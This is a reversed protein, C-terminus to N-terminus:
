EESSDGADKNESESTESDESVAPKRVVEVDKARSLKTMISVVVPAQAGPFNASNLLDALLKIEVEALPEVQKFNM